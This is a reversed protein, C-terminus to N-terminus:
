LIKPFFLTGNKSISKKDVSKKNVETNKRHCRLETCIHEESSTKEDQKKSIKYPKIMGWM